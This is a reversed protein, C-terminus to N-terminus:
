RRRAPRSAFLYAIAQLPRLPFWRFSPRVPICGMDKRGLRRRVLAHLRRRVADARAESGSGAAGSAWREPTGLCVPVLHLLTLRRCPLNLWGCQGRTRRAGRDRPGPLPSLPVHLCPLSGRCRALGPPRRAGSVRFAGAPVGRHGPPGAGPPTSSGLGARFCRARSAPPGAAPRTSRRLARLTFRGSVVMVCPRLSASLDM